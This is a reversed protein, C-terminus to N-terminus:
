EKAVQLYYKGRRETVEKRDKMRKLVSYIYPRDVQDKVRLWVQGPTIGNTHQRLVERVIDTKNPTFAGADNLPAAPSNSQIVVAATNNPASLNVAEIGRQLRVRIDKMREATVEAAKRQEATMEISILTQLSSFEQAVAQHKAQAQQLNAQSEQLRRQADALREKLMDVFESM